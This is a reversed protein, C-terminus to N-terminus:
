FNGMDKRKNECIEWSRQTTEQGIRDKHADHQAATTVDSDHTERREKRFVVLWIEADRRGHGADVCTHIKIWSESKISM